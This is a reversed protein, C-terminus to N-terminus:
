IAEMEKYKKRGDYAYKEAKRMCDYGCFTLLAGLRTFKYAWGQYLYTSFKKECVPCKYYKVGGESTPNNTKKLRKIIARAEKEEEAKQDAAKDTAGTCSETKKEDKKM